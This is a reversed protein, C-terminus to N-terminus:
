YKRHNTNCYPDGTTNKCETTKLGDYVAQGIQQSSCSTIVFFALVCLVKSRTMLKKELSYLLANILGVLRM